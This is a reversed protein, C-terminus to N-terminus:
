RPSACAPYALAPEREAIAPGHVMLQVRQEHMGAWWFPPDVHDIAPAQAYAPVAVAALLATGILLHVLAHRIPGPM